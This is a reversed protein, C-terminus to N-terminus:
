FFNTMVGLLLEIGHYKIAGTSTEQDTFAAFRYHLGLFALLDDGVPYDVGLGVSTEIVTASFYSAQSSVTKFTTADSISCKVPTMQFQLYPSIRHKILVSGDENIERSSSLGLPYFVGTVGIGSIPLSGFKSGLDALFHLGIRSRVTPIDWLFMPNITVKSGLSTPTAFLTGATFSLMSTGLGFRFTPVEILAEASNRTFSLFILVSLFIVKFTIPPTRM